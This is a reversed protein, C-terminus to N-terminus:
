LLGICTYSQYYNIAICLCYCSITDHLYPNHLSVRKLYSHGENKQLVSAAVRYRLSSSSSYHNSKPAKSAVQRNFSENGQTSGLTSLKGANSEYSTMIDMIAEQLSKDSLPRGHPLSKYKESPNKLFRCWSSSCLSHDGFPHQSLAKLNKQLKEPDGKGQALIHTFCRQLYQIVKFTLTKHDKKVSYLNNGFIKKVHNADSIKRINKDINARLRSITTSDDDGVIAKICVSSNQNVASVMEAIMDSEMGKASGQWNISCDHPSPSTNSNLSLACLHCSKSRISYNVIKGTKTGIM